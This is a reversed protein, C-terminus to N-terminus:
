EASENSSIRKTLSLETRVKSEWPDETGDQSVDEQEKGGLENYVQIVVSPITDEHFGVFADGVSLVRLFVIFYCPVCEINLFFVQNRSLLSLVLHFSFRIQTLLTRLFVM